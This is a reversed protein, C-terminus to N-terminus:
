LVKACEQLVISCCAVFADMCAQKGYVEVASLVIREDFINDFAKCGKFAFEALQDHTKYQEAAYQRTLDFPRGTWLFGLICLGIAPGLTQQLLTVDGVRMQHALCVYQFMDEHNIDKIDLILTRFSTCVHQYAGPQSLM